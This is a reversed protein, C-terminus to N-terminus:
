IGNITKMGRIRENMREKWEEMLVRSQNIMKEVPTRIEEDREDMRKDLRGNFSLIFQEIDSERMSQIFSQNFIRSLESEDSKM